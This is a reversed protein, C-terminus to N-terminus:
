PLITIKTGIPCYEFLLDMVDNDVAVCGATWDSSGGCGHIMIAGGLATNWDPCQGNDIANAIREYTNNDIRGDALAAAADEKNPYSVGLSLYFSSNSNRVCVYYEGEPTKGDGEVQKHGEPEWGLGISFSDILTEGQWLELLRETKKVIIYVEGSQSDIPPYASVYDRHVYGETEQCSIYLWEGEEDLKIIETGKTLQCIVEGNTSPTERFNVISGSIWCTEDGRTNGPSDVTEQLNDDESSTEAFLNGIENGIPNDNAISNNQEESIGDGLISEAQVGITSTNNQIEIYNDENCACFLICIVVSLFLVKFIKKM